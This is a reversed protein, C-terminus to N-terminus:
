KRRRTQRDTLLLQRRAAGAQDAFSIAQAQFRQCLDYLIALAYQTVEEDTMDTVALSHWVGCTEFAEDPTLTRSEENKRVQDTITKTLESMRM